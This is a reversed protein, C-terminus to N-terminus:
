RGGRGPRLVEFRTELGVTAGCWLLAWAAGFAWGAIVETPWHVGLMVRSVGVLLSMLIAAVITLRWGNGNSTLLLALGLFAMMSHAAHGSPFGYSNVAKLWLQQDPRMAGIWIKQYSVLLGGAQTMLLLSLASWFRQQIALLLVGGAIVILLRQSRGFESLILATQEAWSIQGAYLHMLIAQDAPGSHVILMALWVGSLILATILKAAAGNMM